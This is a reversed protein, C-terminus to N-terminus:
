LPNERLMTHLEKRSLPLTNWVAFAFDCHSIISLYDESLTHKLAALAQANAEIYKNNDLYSKKTTALYVHFGLAKIYMLMKVKWTQINLIDFMLPTMFDM